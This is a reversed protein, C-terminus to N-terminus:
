LVHPTSSRSCRALTFHLLLKTPAAPQPPIFGRKPTRKRSDHVESRFLSPSCILFGSMDGAIM